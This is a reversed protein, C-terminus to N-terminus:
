FNLLDFIIQKRQGWWKQSSSQWLSVLPDSQYYGVPPKPCLFATNQLGQKYGQDQGATESTFTFTVPHSLTTSQNCFIMVVLFVFFWFSCSWFCTKIPSGSPFFVLNPSLGCYHCRLGVNISDKRYALCQALCDVHMIMNLKWYSLLFQEQAGKRSSPVLCWILSTSTALVVDCLSTFQSKFQPIWGCLGEVRDGSGHQLCAYALM